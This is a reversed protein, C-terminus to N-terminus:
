ADDVMGCLRCVHQTVASMWEHKCPAIEAPEAGNSHQKNRLSAVEAKLAANEKRLQDREEVVNAVGNIVLGGLSM